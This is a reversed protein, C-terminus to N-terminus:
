CLRALEKKPIVVHDDSANRLFYGYGENKPSEISAHIVHRGTRKVAEVMPVFDEDAALLFADDFADNMCLELMDVALSTDVGKESFDIYQGLLDSVFRNYASMLHSPIRRSDHLDVIREALKTRAIRAQIVVAQADEMLTRDSDAQRGGGAGALVEQAWDLVPRIYSGSRRPVLRGTVLRTYKCTNTLHNKLEEFQMMARDTMFAEHPHLEDVGMFKKGDAVRYTAPVATYYNARVFERSEGCLHLGLRHYDIRAILGPGLDGYFDSKLTDRLASGDIFLMARRLPGRSM